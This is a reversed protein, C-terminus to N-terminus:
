VPHRPQALLEFQLQMPCSSQHVAHDRFRMGQCRSHGSVSAARGQRAADTILRNVAETLDFDGDCDACPCPFRFFASAAGFLTHLQPSPLTSRGDPENFVLEIRLQEITPFRLRLAGARSRDNILRERRPIAGSPAKRAAIRM